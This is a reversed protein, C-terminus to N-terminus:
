YYIVNLAENVDNALVDPKEFLQIHDKADVVERSREFMIDVDLRKKMSERHMAENFIKNKNYEPKYEANVDFDEGNKIRNIRNEFMRKKINLEQKEIENKVLKENKEVKIRNDWNYVNWKKQPLINLGGHGGM